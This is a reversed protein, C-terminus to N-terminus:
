RPNGANDAAGAEGQPGGPAPFGALGEQHQQARLIAAMEPAEDIVLAVDFLHQGTQFAM